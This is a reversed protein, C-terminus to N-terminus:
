DNGGSHLVLNVLQIEADALEAEAKQQASLANYVPTLENCGDLVNREYESRAHNITAVAASRSLIAQVFRRTANLITEQQKQSLM